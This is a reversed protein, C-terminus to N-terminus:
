RNMALLAYIDKEQFYGVSTKSGNEPMKKM